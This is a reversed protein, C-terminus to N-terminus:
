PSRGRLVRPEEMALRDLAYAIRNEMLEVAEDKGALHMWGSAAIGVLDDAVSQLCHPCDGIEDYVLNEAAVAAAEDDADASMRALVLRHAWARYLWLMRMPEEAEEEDHSDKRNIKELPRAFFCGSRFRESRRCHTCHTVFTFMEYAYEYLSKISKDGVVGM